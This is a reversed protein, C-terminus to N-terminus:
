CSRRPRRRCRLRTVLAPHIRLRLRQRVKMDNYAQVLQRAECNRHATPNCPKARVLSCIEHVGLYLSDSGPTHEYMNELWKFLNIRNVRKAKTSCQRLLSYYHHEAAWQEAQRREAVEDETWDGSGDELAGLSAMVGTISLRVSGRRGGGGSSAGAGAGPLGGGAAATAAAAATEDVGSPRATVPPAGGARCCRCSCWCLKREACLKRGREFFCCCFVNRIGRWSLSFFRKCRALYEQEMRATPEKWKDVRKVQSGPLRPPSACPRHRAGLACPFLHSADAYRM